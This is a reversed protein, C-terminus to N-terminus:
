LPAFYFIGLPAGTQALNALSPYKDSHEKWFQMQNIQECSENLYDTVEQQIPDGSIHREKITRNANKPFVFHNWVSM